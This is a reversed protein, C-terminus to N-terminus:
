TPGPTDARDYITPPPPTARGTRMLAAVLDVHHQQEVDYAYTHRYRALAHHVVGRDLHSARWAGVTFRLRAALDPRRM